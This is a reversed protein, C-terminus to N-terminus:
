KRRRRMLGLGAVAALIGASPEPVAAGALGLNGVEGATLVGDWVALAGINLSANEDDDDHFFLVTPQLAFRNDRLFDTNATGAHNYFLVGNIYAKITSNTSVADLHYTLVLRSWSAEPVGSTTYTMSSTGMRDTDNRIFYDADQDNALTTQVIARWSSRSAVPSFMDVLISFDNVLAGGGNPAINHTATFGNGTGTVTTVVGSLPKASDDALTASYTPATGNIALNTGVTAQGLNAPNDFTWLGKLAAAQTFSGTLALTLAIAPFSMKM